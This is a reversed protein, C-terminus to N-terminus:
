ADKQPNDQDAAILLLRCFSELEGKVSSLAEPLLEILYGLREEDLEFAYISRIVHRFALFESLLVTTKSSLVAPRGELIERNMQELLDLHWRDGSPFVPDLQRSIVSFVRELGNYFSHLNLAVSDLYYDKHKAIHSAEEWADLTRQATREVNCLESDIREKLYLLDKRM